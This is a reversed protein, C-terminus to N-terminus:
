EFRWIQENIDLLYKILSFQNVIFGLQMNGCFVLLEIMGLYSYNNAHKRFQNYEIVPM